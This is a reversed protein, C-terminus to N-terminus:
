STWFSWSSPPQDVQSVLHTHTSDSFWSGLSVSTVDTHWFWRTFILLPWLKLRFHSLITSLLCSSRARVSPPFNNHHESLFHFDFLWFSGKNELTWTCSAQVTHPESRVQLFRYYFVYRLSVPGLVGCKWQVRVGKLAWALRRNTQMESGGEVCANGRRGM